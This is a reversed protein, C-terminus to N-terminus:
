YKRVYIERISGSSTPFDIPINGMVRESVDPLGAEITTFNGPLFELFPM